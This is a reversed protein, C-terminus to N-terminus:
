KFLKTFFGSKNKDERDINELTNGKSKLDGLLSHIDQASELLLNYEQVSLLSIKPANIEECLLFAFKNLEDLSEFPGILDKVQFDSPVIKERYIKEALDRDIMGRHDMVYLLYYEPNIADHVKPQFYHYIGVITEDKQISM